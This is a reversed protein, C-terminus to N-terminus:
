LYCVTILGMIKNKQKNKLMKEIIRLMILKYTKSPVLLDNM